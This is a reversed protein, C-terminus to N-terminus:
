YEADKRHDMQSLVKIIAIVIALVVLAARVKPEWDFVRFNGVIFSVIFLASIISIIISIIKKKM